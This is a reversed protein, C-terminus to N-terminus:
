LIYIYIYIYKIEMNMSRDYKESIDITDNGIIEKVIYRGQLEIGSENLDRITM